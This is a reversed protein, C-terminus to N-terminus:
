KCEFKQGPEACARYEAPESGAESPAKGNKAVEKSRDNPDVPAAAGATEAAAPATTNKKDNLVASGNADDSAHEVKEITIPDRKRKQRPARQPLCEYNPQESM